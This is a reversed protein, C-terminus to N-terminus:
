NGKSAPQKELVERIVGIDQRMGLLQEMETFQSLQTLFEVGDAPNLPNQHRIQAVLLQLFNEKTALNNGAPSPGEPRAGNTASSVAAPNM